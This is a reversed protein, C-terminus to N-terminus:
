LDHISTGTISVNLATISVNDVGVILKV